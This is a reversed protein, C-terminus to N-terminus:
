NSSAKSKSLSTLVYGITASFIIFGVVCSVIIIILRSDISQPRTNLGCVAVTKDEKFTFNIGVYPKIKEMVVKEVWAQQWPRGNAFVVNVTPKEIASLPYKEMLWFKDKDSLTYNYQTTNTGIIFEDPLEYLMISNPDYDTSFYTDPDNYNNIINLDADKKCEADDPPDPIGDCYDSYVAPKNITFSRSQNNQHEHKAGLAHLFEHLIVSGDSVNEDCGLPDCGDRTENKFESLPYTIGKYTFNKTPPDTWSLSMSSKKCLYDDETINCPAGFNNSYNGIASSPNGETEFCISIRNNNDSAKFIASTNVLAKLEKGSRDTRTIMDNYLYGKVM